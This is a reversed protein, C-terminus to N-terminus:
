VSEGMRAAAVAARASAEESKAAALQEASPEQIARPQRAARQKKAAAPTEVLDLLYNVEVLRADILDREHLLDTRRERLAAVTADPLDPKDNM